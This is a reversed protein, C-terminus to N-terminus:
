PPTGNQREDYYRNHEGYFAFNVRGTFPPPGLQGEVTVRFCFEVVHWPSNHFVDKYRVWGWFFQHGQRHMFLDNLQPSLIDITGSPIEADPGLVFPQHQGQQVVAGYEFDTENQVWTAGVLSNVPVAPTGGSNKWPVLLRLGWITQDERMLFQSQPALPFVYAQEIIRNDRAQERGIRSLVITFWAIAATAFATISTPNIVYGVYWFVVYLLHHPTCSEHGTNYQNTECIQYYASADSQLVLYVAFIATALLFGIAIEYRKM